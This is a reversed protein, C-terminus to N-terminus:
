SREEQNGSKKLKKGVERRRNERALDIQRDRWHGPWFGQRGIM